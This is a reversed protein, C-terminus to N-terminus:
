KSSENKEKRIKIGFIDALSYGDVYYSDSKLFFMEGYPNIYIMDFPLDRYKLEKPLKYFKDKELEVFEM